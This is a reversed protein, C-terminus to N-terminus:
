SSSITTTLLGASNVNEVDVVKVVMAELVLEDVSDQDSVEKNEHPM